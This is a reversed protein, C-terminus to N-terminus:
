LALEKWKDNIDEDWQGGVNSEQAEEFVIKSVVKEGKNNKIEDIVGNNNILEILHGKIHWGAMRSGYSAKVEVDLSCDPKNCTTTSINFIIKSFHTSDERCLIKRNNKNSSNATELDIDGNADEPRFYKNDMLLLKIPKWNQVSQKKSNNGDDHETTYYEGNDAKYIREQEIIARVLQAGEKKAASAYFLDLNPVLLLLIGLIVLVVLLEIMTYAKNQKLNKM